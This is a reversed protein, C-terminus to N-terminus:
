ANEVGGEKELWIITTPINTGSGKFAGAETDEYGGHTNVFELFAKCKKDQRYKFNPMAVSVIFGLKDLIKWAHYIHDIYALKNGEVSFPPNMYIANYPREPEFALFDQEYVTHGKGRLIAARFPDIEVTDLTGHFLPNNKIRDAIAGLGASPELVRADDPLMDIATPGYMYLMDIVVDEPTQFFALPNKPPMIGCGCVSALLETPDYPFVHAKTKGSKWKGGLRELVENVEEYLQRDIQGCTLRLRHDDPAVHQYEVMQLVTLAQSSIM